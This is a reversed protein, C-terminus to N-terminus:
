LHGSENHRQPTLRFLIIDQTFFTIYLLKAKYFYLVVMERWHLDVLM